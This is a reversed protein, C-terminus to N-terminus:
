EAALEEYDSPVTIGMEEARKASYKKTLDKAFQVEMDAPDKGNVLIDYAMEAAKQGIDNYSISLTAIGCGKCIGEEGAIIPLKAPEAINAILETNAAATNDTPIYMADCKSVASTVVASIDNSDAFPYM